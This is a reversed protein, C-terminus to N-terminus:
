MEILGCRACHFLYQQLIGAHRGFRARANAALAAPSNGEIGLWKRSLRDVWVDVPYAGLHGCGFLLACDAVKPGVGPLATLLAKAEDYGMGSLEALPFGDDVRRATEALYEARYGLGLARLAQAGAGALAGPEPFAFLARGFAERKAGFAECLARVLKGIRGTNNNQSVIFAALAEWEPQRLIRLGPLRLFAEGACPCDGYEELILAYDRDLDFYRRVFAEPCGDPAIVSIGPGLQRVMMPVGGAVACFGGDAELWHFAQASEILTLRADFPADPFSFERV